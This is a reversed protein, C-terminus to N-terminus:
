CGLLVLWCAAAPCVLYKQQRQEWADGLHGAPGFVMVDAASSTWTMMQIKM